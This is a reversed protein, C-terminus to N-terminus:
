GVSRQELGPLRPALPAPANLCDFCRIRAVEALTACRSRITDDRPAWPAQIAFPFKKRM